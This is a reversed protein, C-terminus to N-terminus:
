MKDKSAFGDSESTTMTTRDKGGQGKSTSTRAIDEGERAGVGNVITQGKGIENKSETSNRNGIM